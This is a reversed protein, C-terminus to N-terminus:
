TNGLLRALHMLADQHRPDLSLAERHCAIAKAQNGSADHVLGLLHFTGSSPGHRKLSEECYAAAAALCGRDARSIDTAIPPPQELHPVAPRAVMTWPAADAIPLVAIPSDNESMPVGTALCM